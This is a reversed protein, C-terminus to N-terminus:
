NCDVYVFGIIAFARLAEDTMGPPRHGAVFGTLSDLRSGTATRIDTERSENIADLTLRRQKRAWYEANALRNPDTRNM